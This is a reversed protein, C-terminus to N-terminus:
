RGQSGPRPRHDLFMGGIGGRLEALRIGTALVPNAAAMVILQVAIYQCAPKFRIDSPMRGFHWPLKAPKGGSSTTLWCFGGFKKTFGTSRRLPEFCHMTWRLCRYVTGTTVKTDSAAGNSAQRASYLSSLAAPVWRRRAETVGSCALLQDSALINLRRVVEHVPEDRFLAMGLVLWFVQDSPLRRRRVMAQTSRNLASAVWEVPISQTFTSLDSFKFLNGLYLLQHQILM